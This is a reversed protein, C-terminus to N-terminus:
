RSEKILNLYTEELSNEEAMGYVNMNLDALDKYLRKRLAPDSSITISVDSGLRETSMVYDLASIQRMTEDTPIGDVKAIINRMGNETEFASIDDDRMLVGHNIFAIRDCLDQVEPLIHSSMVITLDKSDNRLNKLVERMEAMGRPDLGSTPEDLIIIRPDNLLAQGLAIRQRMGKSFTGIRKDAWYSMKIKELIEETDASIQERRMGLIGGIYRFTETPTLYPYFEPTEIVTGVGELAKKPNEKIEVGNLYASGSTARILHTLIKLTTSKGAGNPGLLGTFSNKKITLNLDNVATFKGYEKRLNVIEIPNETM